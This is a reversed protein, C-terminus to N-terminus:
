PVSLVAARPRSPDRGDEARPRGPEGQGAPLLHEELFRVIALFLFDANSKRAFGHGEDRALLYWVDGGADRVAKVMQESESVPVRPDNLGQAVFLPRRIRSAQNLPSIRDLFAAMEPDTEDGYEARRLDRRYDQTNRLFTTFSSIGVVDIGCRLRDGFRLMSALTMYGGYSGGYVAIREGDIGPDAAMLDLFAGIDRVADERRMGNDLLLFSKGYGSSGRVNPYLLALGMREVLYNWRGLFRPRSQSEPGGHISIVLPRPGPFRRPDPRHLFGSIELGDFSRVRVLEPEVFRSPRLGGTQSRTWRTLKRGGIRASWAEGPSTTSSLTFAVESGDPRWALDSAVGMPLEPVPLERATELDLVRLESRGGVNHVVAVAGAAPSIEMAEVDGEVAPGFATLEGTELDIRALRLFESDLDTAILIRRGDPLFRGGPYAVREGHEPTIRAPRGTERDILHLSSENISLYLVALIRSGDPSWDAIRWGNGTLEAVRRDSSPDAPDIVHFDADRGNRRTSAYALLRGDHAWRPGFNRSRGDTLLEIEGTGVALRYLQHFESGGRDSSFVIRSPDAPQYSGGTVRDELSTLPRPFAGPRRVVHLQETDGRRTTILIDRRGPHWDLFTSARFELFPGVERALSEPIEPIGDTVIQRPVPFAPEPGAKGAAAQM